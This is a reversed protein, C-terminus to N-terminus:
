TGWRFSLPNETGFGIVLPTMQVEKLKKALESSRFFRWETSEFKSFSYIGFNHLMKRQLRCVAFVLDILETCWLERVLTIGSPADDPVREGRASVRGLAGGTQPRRYRWTAVNEM